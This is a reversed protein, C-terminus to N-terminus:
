PAGPLISSVKELKGKGCAPCLTIDRGLLQSLIEITNLGEFQPRYTLSSTLRRCLVLKTKKNRNALLGCHRIKVFGKPLIHMLFRRIFEIGTMTLMKTKNNDKYDKITITVTSRFLM